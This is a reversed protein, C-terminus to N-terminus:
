EMFSCPGSLPSRWKGRVSGLCPDPCGLQGNQPGRNTVGCSLSWFGDLDEGVQGARHIEFLGFAAFGRLRQLQAGVVDPVVADDLQAVDFELVDVADGHADRLSRPCGLFGLKAGCM